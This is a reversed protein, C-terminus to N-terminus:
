KFYVPECEEINLLFLFTDRTGFADLTNFAYSLINLFIEHYKRYGQYGHYVEPM